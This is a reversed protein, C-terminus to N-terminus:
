LPLQGIVTTNGVVKDGINQYIKTGLPLYLDIRSGFKIFGLFDNITISDGIQPYTVIRRAIAGAIQRELVLHGQPTEIVIASRENETSSKPLFAQHFNGMIHKVEKVIGNCTPWNIHVDFISMFISVKLCQKQLFETEFVEEIVVIKGDAPAVLVGDKIHNENHRHPERFFNLALLFLIISGILIPTFIYPSSFFYTSTNILIFLLIICILIEKGEKHIKM